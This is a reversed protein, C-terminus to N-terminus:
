KAGPKCAQKQFKRHAQDHPSKPNAYKPFRINRLVRLADQRVSLLQVETPILYAIHTSFLDCRGQGAHRIQLIKRLRWSPGRYIYIHVGWIHQTKRNNKQKISTSEGRKKNTEFHQHSPQHMLENDWTSSFMSTFAPCLM